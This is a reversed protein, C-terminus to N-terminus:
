STGSLRSKKQAKSKRLFTLRILFSIDRLSNIISIVAPFFDFCAGACDRPARIGAPFAKLMRADVTKRNLRQQLEGQQCDRRGHPAATRQPAAGHGQPLALDVFFTSGGGPRDTVGITGGMLEVLQRCIALGLGTGGYRRTTSSDVQSFRQFLRQAESPSIGIGTDSVSVVVGDVDRRCEVTVTGGPNHLDYAM